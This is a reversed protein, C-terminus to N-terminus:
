RAWFLSVPPPPSKQLHGDEPINRRTSHYFNVSTDTTSAAEMLLAITSPAVVWVATKMSAATLVKFRLCFIAWVAIFVKVLQALTLEM